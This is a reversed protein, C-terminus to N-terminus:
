RKIGAFARRYSESAAIGQWFPVDDGSPAELIMLLKDGDSLEWRQRARNFTFTM